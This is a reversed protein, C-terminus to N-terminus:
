HGLGVEDNYYKFLNLLFMSDIFLCFLFLLVLYQLYLHITSGKFSINRVLTVHFVIIYVPFYVNTWCHMVMVELEDKWILIVTTCM